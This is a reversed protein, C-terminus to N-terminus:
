VTTFALGREQTESFLTFTVTTRASANQDSIIKAIRGLESAIRDLFASQPDPYHMMSQTESSQAPDRSVPREPTFSTQQPAGGGPASAAIAPKAAHDLARNVSWRVVAGLIWGALASAPGSL